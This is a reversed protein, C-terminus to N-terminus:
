RKAPREGRRRKRFGEVWGARRQDPKPNFALAGPEVDHRVTTGTAVYADDGIRVPAVLQSDSGIQVRDGIETRHKEFGDYNCTITGAGINSESGITADGLYALHNAKTGAGVESKKVEVFNGIHVREHLHTGPRLQAFPGVIAGADIRSEAIVVMPRLHVGDGLVADTLVASGEIACDRGITTSGRLQVVPGIVTDPGITVSPEVYATAPDLFTVGAAMHRAVTEHRLAAELAALDARSNIGAVEHPDVPETLVPGGQAVAAAVIDTLYLEGQANDARLGALAASLFEARCCYIGPNVERIRRQEEGADREEVIAALRGEDDRVIRGYGYPEDVVTTLLSLLARQERHRRVLRALTESRLLPVDGYLIVVDGTFGGLEAACAIRVAHGTGRQEQQLAFRVDFGACVARVADAQHGVVVVTRGAGLGASAALVHCLLPRGGLQHLVKAHASKMRTGQGAALVVVALRADGAGESRAATSM